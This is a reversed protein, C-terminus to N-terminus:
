RWYKRERKYRQLEASFGEREIPALRSEGATLIEQIKRYIKNLRSEVEKKNIGETEDKKLKNIKDRIREEIMRTKIYELYKERNRKNGSKLLRREREEFRVAAPLGEVQIDLFLGLHDSVFVSDRPIISCKRIRNRVGRTCWVHDIARRGPKRTPSM